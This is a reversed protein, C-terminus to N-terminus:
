LVECNCCCSQPYNECYVARNNVGYVFFQFPKRRWVVDCQFVPVGRISHSQMLIRGSQGMIQHDRIYCSSMMNVDLDPFSQIPRLQPQTDELLVTGEVDCILHDPLPTREIIFEKAHTEFKTTLRVFYKVQGAAKCTACPVNGRGSCIKCLIANSGSCGICKQNSDRFGVNTDSCHSCRVQGWGMCKCCKIIATGNCGHCIKVSATHPVETEVITDQFMNPQPVQIRWPYPAQGNMSGDIVQGRYPEFAWNTSRKEIFTKLQYHVATTQLLNRFEMKLAANTGWCCMSKAQQYLLDRAEEETLKASPAITQPSAVPSSSRPRPPPPISTVNPLLIKDYGAIKEMKALPVAAPAEEAEQQQQTKGNDKPIQGVAGVLRHGFSPSALLAGPRAPQQQPSRGTPMPSFSTQLVAGQQQSSARGVPNGTPEARGLSASTLTSGSTTGSLRQQGAARQQSGAITTQSLGVPSQQDSKSSDSTVADGFLQQQSLGQQQPTDRNGMTSRVNIQQSKRNDGYVFFQFEKDEWQCDCQFVPVGRIVHNQMWIRGTQALGRHEQVIGASQSNVQPEPFSQIPNLLPQTDEFLTKRNDGYVFFQFEKDEWQCDCQFVPVGRIVHNQMWIRGTQALGRHEQVIGASQSNVQPEPFSQIPNLLPQTDEFLTTGEVDRILHDPLATRELIFDKVHTNFTTTMQVFCKVQGTAQCTPCTVRGRGHCHLCRVRGQGNCSTCSRSGDGVGHHGSDHCWSCRTRGWGMCHHCMIMTSGRCGHCVRVSATHPVETQLTVDHFMEPTKIHIAWPSPAPGNQPGDIMQGHYPESAWDTSRTELFTKLVYHVATTQQLGNFKMNQAAGKGWCCKSEAVAVLLERAEEETLNAASAIQEVSTGSTAEQYSPPPPVFNVNPALVEDYGPIREMDQIPPATPVAQEPAAGKGGDMPMEGEGVPYPGKYPAGGPPKPPPAGGYSPGPQGYPAAGPQGYPSDLTSGWATRLTGGLSDTPHQGPQGYPAVGPQGYPAVRPQGYPTPGPQYSPQGAYYQQGQEPPGGYPGQYGCSSSSDETPLGTTAEEESSKEKRLFQPEPDTGSWKYKYANLGRELDYMLGCCCTQPYGDTHLTRNDGYVFFQFEKDKWQCDCQFVPVGRIVHNQMWIRGTQALGRHEQILSASAANVAGPVNRILEDPLPTQELIFDKTHTKFMTTLQVFCKVQGAAECVPCPIRGHGRCNFCTRKGSGGCSLCQRRNDGVGKVGKGRCSNCRTRGFGGCRLCMCYHCTRVSATHPVECQMRADRFMEPQQVHIDWPAPAQGNQPGDVPQGKFPVSAWETSRTEVFTRLVYHVATSKQLSSITMGEAAGKGWCCKSKAEAVLLARAEDETLSKNSIWRDVSAGQTAEQYSPPPPTVHTVNPKVIEEY